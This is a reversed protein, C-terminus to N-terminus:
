TERRQADRRKRARDQSRELEDEAAQRQEDDTPPLEVTEYIYTNFLWASSDYPAAVKTPRVWNLWGGDEARDALDDFDVLTNLTQDTPKGIDDGILMLDNGAGGDLVNRGYVDGLQDQGVGGQLHDNGGGGWLVDDGEGGHLTDADDGGRLADGASGGQIMDDGQGGYVWVAVDVSDDALFAENGGRLDFKANCVQEATWLASEGNISVRYQDQGDRRLTVVDDAETGLVEFGMPRLPLQIM